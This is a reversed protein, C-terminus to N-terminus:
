RKFFEEGLEKRLKEVERQMSASSPTKWGLLAAVRKRMDDERAAGYSPPHKKSWETLSNFENAKKAFDVISRFRFSADAKRRLRAFQTIQKLWGRRCAIVYTTPNGIRWADVTVFQSASELCKEYTWKVPRGSKM